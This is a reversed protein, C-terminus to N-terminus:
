KPEFKLKKDKLGKIAQTLGDLTLPYMRDKMIEKIQEISPTYEWYKHDTPNLWVFHPYNEILRELWVQGSEENYHEVSGYQATVEYPGMTADGVLIVKYDKNYKNFIEYTPLREEHRRKNDKWVYEYLCNHFYYFELHKFEYKAASFFKECLHIYSDMSGGIDFLILVKVNNKKIPVMEIDLWGGNKSTKHITTDIDLEDQHGERTLIRLRRLAMKMNRTNLEVNDDLNKYERKDWVKAASGQRSAKQGIRVGEPNYGQAGFPSTGMTGIWKNGGQHREQQEEMLQRFREMLAEIGGMAEIMAKEEETFNRAGLSDLWEKPIEVLEEISQSQVGQMFMGFLQDFKDLNKEHKVLISRSLAYFDDVNYDIVRKKLAEMLTLHERLSVPLGNNRLLYFFNILM